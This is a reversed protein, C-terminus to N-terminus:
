QHKAFTYEFETFVAGDQPTEWPDHSQGSRLHYFDCGTFNQLFTMMWDQARKENLRHHSNPRGSCYRYVPYSNTFDISQEELRILAFVCYSSTWTIPM